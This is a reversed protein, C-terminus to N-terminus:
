WVRTQESRHGPQPLSLDHIRLAQNRKHRRRKTTVRGNQPTCLRHCILVIGSNFVDDDAISARLQRLKLRLQVFDIRVNADNVKGVPLVFRSRVCRRPIALARLSPTM